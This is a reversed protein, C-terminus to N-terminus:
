IRDKREFDEPKSSAVYEKLVRRQQPQIAPQMRRQPQSAPQIPRQPQSAPQSFVFVPGLRAVLAIKNLNQRSMGSALVVRDLNDISVKPIHLQSNHHAHEERLQGPGQMVKDLQEVKMPTATEQKSFRPIVNGTKREVRDVVQQLFDQVEDVTSCKSMVTDAIGNVVERKYKVTFDEWTKTPATM